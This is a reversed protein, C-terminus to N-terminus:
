KDEKKRFLTAIKKALFRFFALFLYVVFAYIFPHFYNRREQMSSFREFASSLLDPHMVLALTVLLTTYIVVERIVIKQM